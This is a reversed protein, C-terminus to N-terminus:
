CAGRPHKGLVGGGEDTEKPKSVPQLRGDSEEQGCQGPIYRPGLGGHNGNIGAVKGREPLPVLAPRGWALVLNDVAWHGLDSARRGQYASWSEPNHKTEDHHRPQARHASEHPLGNGPRQALVAVDGKLAEKEGGVQAVSLKGVERPGAGDGLVIDAGNELPVLKELELIPRRRTLKLRQYGNM